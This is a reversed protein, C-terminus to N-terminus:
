AAKRVRRQLAYLRRRLKNRTLRQAKLRRQLEAKEWNAKNEIDAADNLLKQNQFRLERNEEDQEDCEEHCELLAEQLARSANQSAQILEYLSRNQAQLEVIRRQNETGTSAIVARLAYAEAEYLAGLRVRENKDAIATAIDVQAKQLCVLLASFTAPESM